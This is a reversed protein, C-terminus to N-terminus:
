QFMDAYQIEWYRDTPALENGVAIEHVTERWEEQDNDVYEAVTLEYRYMESMLAAAHTFECRGSGPRHPFPYASCTCPKM